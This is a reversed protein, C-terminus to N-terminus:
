KKFVKGLVNRMAETESHTYTKGQTGSHGLIIDAQADSGGSAVILTRLTHRLSHFTKRAVKRGSKFVKYKQKIGAASVLATFETSINCNGVRKFESSLEPCIDGKFKSIENLWEPVVLPVEIDKGTKTQTYSLIGKKIAKSVMTIADELRAGSMASLAAARGWERMRSDGDFLYKVLKKVEQLTFPIRDLAEDKKLKALDVSLCPNSPYNIEKMAFTYMRKVLKIRENASNVTMKEMCAEYFANAQEPTFWDLPQVSNEGLWDEFANFYAVYTKYSGAKIRAKRGRKYRDIYDNLPPWQTQDLKVVIGAAAYISAVVSLLHDKDISEGKMKAAGDATTQLSKAISQAEEFDSSGTSVSAWEFDDKKANWRKIKTYYNNSTGRKYVSGSPM